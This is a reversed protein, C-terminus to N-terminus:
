EPKPLELDGNLGADVWESVPRWLIVVQCFILGALIVLRAESALAPILANALQDLASDAALHPWFRRM